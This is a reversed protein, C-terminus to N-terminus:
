RPPAWEATGSRCRASVPRNGIEILSTAGLPKATADAATCLRVATSTMATVATTVQMVRNFGWHIKGRRRRRAPDFPESKFKDCNSGAVWQFTSSSFIQWPSPLKGADHPDLPTSM